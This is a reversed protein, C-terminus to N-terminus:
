VLSSGESPPSLKRSRGGGGGTEEVVEEKYCAERGGEKWGEEKGEETRIWRSYQAIIRMGNLEGM